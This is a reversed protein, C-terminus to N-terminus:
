RTERSQELIEELEEIQEETLTVSQLLAAFAETEKGSFYSSIFKRGKEKVCEARSKLAFYHYVRADKEDVKYDVIKKGCLRNLLVRVMKPTMDTAGQLKQILESSTMPVGSEWLIEMIIWESESPMIEEGM